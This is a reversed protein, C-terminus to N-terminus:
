LPASSFNTECGEVFEVFDRDQLARYKRWAAQPIPLSFFWDIDKRVGEPKLLMGEKTARFSTSLHVILLKSLLLEEDTLPEVALDANPDLVRSLGPREYCASWIHQHHEAITLLNATRRMREDSRFAVATFWLGAATFLLGGVIGASQLADFWHDGLIKLIGM